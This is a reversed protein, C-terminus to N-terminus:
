RSWRCFHRCRLASGNLSMPSCRPAPPRRPKAGSDAGFGSIGLLISAFNELSFLPEDNRACRLLRTSLVGLRSSIAADGSPSRAIVLEGLWFDVEDPSRELCICLVLRM